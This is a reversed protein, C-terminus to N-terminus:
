IRRYYKEEAEYAERDFPEFVESLDLSFGDLVSSDVIDSRTFLRSSVYEGSKDLKYILMSKETPFVVWYERVGYSRYLEYKHNLDKESTSPSLIEVIMDPSGLCGRHDIKHLDCIACIDPQVVNTIIMDPDDPNYFRVDYPAMFVKCNKNKLFSHMASGINLGIEQHESSPAPSMRFLYGQILEVQEQLNWSIYDKYTYRKEFDLQSLETIM